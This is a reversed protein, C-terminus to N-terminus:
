PTKCDIDDDSSDDGVLVKLIEEARLNQKPKNIQSYSMRNM